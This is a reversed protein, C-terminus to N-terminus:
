DADDFEECRLTIPGGNDVRTPGRDIRDFLETRMEEVVGLLECLDVAPNQLLSRFYTRLIDM